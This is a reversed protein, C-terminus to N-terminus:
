LEKRFAKEKSARHSSNVSVERPKVSEVEQIPIFLKEGHENKVWVGSDLFTDNRKGFVFEDFIVERFNMNSVIAKWDEQSRTFVCYSVNYTWNIYDTLNVCYQKAELWFPKKVLEDSSNKWVITYNINGYKDVSLNQEKAIRQNEKISDGVCIIETIVNDGESFDYSEVFVGSENYYGLIKTSCGEQSVESREWIGCGFLLVMGVLLLLGWVKTLNM